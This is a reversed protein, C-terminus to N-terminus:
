TTPKPAFQSTSLDFGKSLLWQVKEGIDDLPKMSESPEDEEGIGIRGDKMFCIWGDYCRCNVGIYLQVDDDLMTGNDNPVLEIDLEDEEVPIAEPHHKTNMCMLAFEHAEDRTMEALPRKTNKM